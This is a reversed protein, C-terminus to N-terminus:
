RVSIKRYQGPSTGFRRQFAASFQSTSSYGVEQAVELVTLHSERLLLAAQRLRQEQLWAHLPMDYLRRFEKKLATQSIGFRVSLADITLREDLHHQMYAAADTVIRSLATRTPSQPLAGQTPLSNTSILYLLEVTKWVSFGTQNERDLNSLGSFTAATWLSADISLCGEHEAMYDRVAATNLPGADLMQTLDQLTTVADFVNVIVLIGALDSSASAHLISESSSALLVDRPGISLSRGRSRLLDLQGALCFFAECHGPALHVPVTKQACGGDIHCVKLGPMPMTCRAEHDRAFEELM